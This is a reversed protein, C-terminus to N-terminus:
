ADDRSERIALYSDYRRLDIKGDAVGNKVSIIDDCYECRYERNAEDVLYFMHPVDKETSTVCRPNSCKIVNTVKAPLKLQIKSQVEGGEIITVTANPDILGLVKMDLDTVDQIKIIDKRGHKKSDTNLIFATVYKSKALGLYNFIKIGLGATIHDIVIGKEISNVLRGKGAGTETM